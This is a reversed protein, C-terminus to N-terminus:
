WSPSDIWQALGAPLAWGLRMTVAIAVADVQYLSVAPFSASASAGLQPPASDQMVLASEASTRIEANGISSFFAAGDVAIFVDDAIMPSGFVPLDNTALNRAAMARGPSAFFLINDGGGSAVVASALTQVDALLSAGSSSGSVGALLGAPRTTDAATDSFIAADLARSAARRLLGTFASEANSGALLARTAVFSVAANFPAVVPASFSLQAVPFADGEAFFLAAPSASWPITMASVGSLDGLDIGAGILRAAASTTALSELFASSVGSGALAAGASSVSTPTVSSRCVEAIEGRRPWRSRAIDEPSEGSDPLARALACAFAARYFTRDIPRPDTPLFRPDFRPDDTM